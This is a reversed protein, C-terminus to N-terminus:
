HWRGPCTHHSNLAESAERRRRGLNLHEVAPLLCAVEVQM